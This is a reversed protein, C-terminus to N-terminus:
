TLAFTAHIVSDEFRQLQLLLRTHRRYGIPTVVNNNLKSVDVLHLKIKMTRNYSKLSLTREDVASTTSVSTGRFGYEGTDM